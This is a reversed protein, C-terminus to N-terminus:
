VRSAIWAIQELNARIQYLAKSLATAIEQKQPTSHKTHHEHWGAELASAFSTYKEWKARSVHARVEPADPMANYCTILDATNDLIDIAKLLYAEAGVRGSFFRQTTQAIAEGKAIDQPTTVDGILSMIKITDLGPCGTDIEALTNRIIEEGSEVDELTDHFLMAIQVELPASGWYELLRKRCRVPHRWYPAGGVRPYDHLAKVKEIVLELAQNCGFMMRHAM